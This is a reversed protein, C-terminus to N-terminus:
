LPSLTFNDKDGMVTFTWCRPVPPEAYLTFHLPPDENSPDLSYRGEVRGIGNARGTIHVRLWGQETFGWLVDVDKPVINPRLVQEILPQRLAATMLNIATMPISTVRASGTNKDSM